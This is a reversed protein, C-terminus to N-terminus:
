MSEEGEVTRVWSAERKELFARIGEQGEAGTRLRAILAATERRAVAPELSRLERLLGKVAAVARPGSSLLLAVQERVAADLGDPPVVQHVLGIERARM